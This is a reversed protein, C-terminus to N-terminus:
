KALALLDWVRYEVQPFRCAADAVSVRYSCRVLDRQDRTASQDTAAGATKAAAAVSRDKAM